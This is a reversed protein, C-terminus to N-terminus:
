VGISVIHNQRKLIQFGYQRSPVLTLSSMSLVLYINISFLREMTILADSSGVMILYFLIGFNAGSSFIYFDSQPDDSKRCMTEFFITKSSKLVVFTLSIYVFIGLYGTDILNQLITSHLSYYTNISSSFVFSEYYKNIGTVYQGWIGYGIIHEPSFDAFFKIVVRWIIDRNSFTDTNNGRYMAGAELIYAVFDKLYMFLFSFLYLSIFIQSIYKLLLKILSSHTLLLRLFLFTLVSVFCALFAARSDALVIIWFSVAISLCLIALRFFDRSRPKSFRGNNGPKTYMLSICSAVFLTGVIAGSHTAGWSFSALPLAIRESQFGFLNSLANNSDVNEHNFISLQKSLPSYFLSIEVLCYFLIGLFLSSTIKEKEELVVAFRSVLYFFVLNIINFILVTEPILGNFFGRICSVINVGLFIIVLTHIIKSQRSFNKKVKPKRFFLYLSLPFIFIIQVLLLVPKIGMIGDSILTIIPYFFIFIQVFLM